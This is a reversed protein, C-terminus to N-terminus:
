LPVNKQDDKGNMQRMALSLNDFYHHRIKREKCGTQQEGLNRKKLDLVHFFKSYFPM